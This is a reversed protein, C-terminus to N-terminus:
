SNNKVKKYLNMVFSPTNTYLNLKLRNYFGLRWMKVSLQRVEKENYLINKKSKLTYWDNCGTRKFHVYDFKRLYSKITTDKGEFNDELILVKPRHKSISFGKLVELEHGEVDITIFDIEPTGLDDLISNLTRKEVQIKTLNANHGVSIRQIDPEISSLEEVTDAIFFDCVGDSSSIACNISECSRNEKIKKFCSPIPEIILCRWGAKEFFYSNSRTIGDYGGIEICFGKKDKFLNNLIEDEGHQSYFITKKM